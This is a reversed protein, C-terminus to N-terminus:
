KTTKLSEKAVRRRAGKYYIEYSGNECKPIVLVRTDANRIITILGRRGRIAVSDEGVGLLMGAVFEGCRSHTTM